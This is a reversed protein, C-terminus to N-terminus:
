RSLLPGHHRSWEQPGGVLATVDHRGARALLSAATMAREGHACMVGAPGDPLNDTGLSGLEAPVVGPLHGAEYEAEQRVDIVPGDFREIPMSPISAVARGEEQWAGIGGDLEGLIGEYGINRAQRLLEARDQGASAVVVLPVDAPVVWGLWSAFQPRLAISVSGPLHTAAFEGIPRVDVVWAGATQLRAVQAPSLRPLLPDAPGYLPAGARNLDRLRLFYPPFSGLEGLLKKVFTRTPLPWCRTPGGNGASPPPASRAAGLPASLAPAM